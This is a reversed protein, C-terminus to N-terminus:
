DFIIYGGERIIKRWTKVTGSKMQLWQEFTCQRLMTKPTMPQAKRSPGGKRKPPSDVLLYGHTPRTMLFTHRMLEPCQSLQKFLVDDHADDDPSLYFIVKDNPLAALRRAVARVYPGYVFKLDITTRSSQAGIIGLQPFLLSSPIFTPVTLGKILKIMKSNFITRVIRGVQHASPKRMDKAKNGYGQLWNINPLHQKSARAVAEITFGYGRASIPYFIQAM